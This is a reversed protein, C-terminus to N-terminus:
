IKQMSKLMKLAEDVLLEGGGPAIKAVTGTQYGGDIFDQRAPIYGIADNVLEAVFTHAFPSRRKVELGLEVFLEGPFCVIALEGLRIARLTAEVPPQGKVRLEQLQKLFVAEVTTRTEEDKLQSCFTKIQQPDLLGFDRSPLNIKREMISLSAQDTMEIGRVARLVAEALKEGMAEAVGYRAPHINGCSGLLFFAEGGQAAEISRSAYGAWDWSIASFGDEESCNAHCAYNYLTAITRDQEDAILVVGVRPDIPGCTVAESVDGVWNITGDQRKFRSNIASTDEESYGVGWHTPRLNDLAQRAVAAFRGPLAEVYDYEQPTQLETESWFHPYVDPAYHNHSPFIFVNQSPIGTADQVAAGVGGSLPEPIWLLDCTLLAIRVDDVAFVLARALIPTIQRTAPRRLLWGALSHGLEPTIDVRSTGAYLIGM